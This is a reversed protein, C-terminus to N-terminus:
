QPPSGASYPYYLRYFIDGSVWNTDTFTWSGNGTVTVTPTGAVNAWPGSLSTESEVGYTYGPIGSGSFTPQGNGNLTPNAITPATASVPEVYVTGTATLIGDTATYTFHDEKTVAGNYYIYTGDTTVNTGSASNAVGSLTLSDGDSDSWAATNSLTTIALHLPLGTTVNNTVINAILPAADVELNLAGGSIQLFATEGSDSNIGGGGVTVAPVSGAVAGVNGATANSIVNYTGRSLATGTNNIKFTTSGSLTLTGNTVNLAPMGAAFTVSVTGSGTNLSGNLTGTTSANNSL